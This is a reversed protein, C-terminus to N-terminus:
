IKGGVIKNASSVMYPFSNIFNKLATIPIKWSDLVSMSLQSHAILALYMFTITLFTIFGLSYNIFKQSDNSLPSHGYIWGFIRIWSFIIYMSGLINWYLKLFRWIDGFFNGSSIYTAHNKIIALSAQNLTTLPNLFKSGLYMVGPTISEQQISLIVAYMIPIIIFLFIFFFGFIKRFGRGFISGGIRRIEINNM